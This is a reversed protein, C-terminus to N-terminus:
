VVWVVHGSITHIFRSLLFGVGVRWRWGRTLRLWRGVRWVLNSTAAANLINGRLRGYKIMRIMTAGILEVYVVIPVTPTIWRTADGTPIRALLARRSVVDGRRGRRAM